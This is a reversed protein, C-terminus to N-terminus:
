GWTCVFDILSLIFIDKTSCTPHFLLWRPLPVSGEGSQEGHFSIRDKFTHFQWLLERLENLTFNTNFGFIVCFLARTLHLKMRNMLLCVRTLLMWTSFLCLLVNDLLSGPDQVGM